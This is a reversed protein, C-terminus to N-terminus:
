DGLTDKVGDKWRMRPKRRRRTGEKVSVYMGKSLRKESVKERHGCWKQM